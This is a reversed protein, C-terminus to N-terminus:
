VREPNADKFIRWLTGLIDFWHAPKDMILDLAADDWTMGQMFHWRAIMNAYQKLLKELAVRDRDAGKIARNNDLQRMKCIFKVKSEISRREVRLDACQNCAALPILKHPDALYDYSDSISITIPKRCFKCTTGVQHFPGDNPISM